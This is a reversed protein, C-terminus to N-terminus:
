KIEWATGVFRTLAQRASAYSAYRKRRYTATGDSYIRIIAVGLQHQFKRTRM